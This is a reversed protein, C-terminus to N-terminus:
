LPRARFSGPKILYIDGEHVLKHKTLTLCASAPPPSAACAFLFVRAGLLLYTACSHVPCRLFLAVLVSACAGLPQVSLENSPSPRHSPSSIPCSTSHTLYWAPPWQLNLISLRLLGPILPWWSRATPPVQVTSPHPLVITTERSDPTLQPSLFSCPQGLM